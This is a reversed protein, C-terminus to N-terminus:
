AEQGGGEVSIAWPGGLGKRVRARGSEGRTGVCRRLGLGSRIGMERDRERTEERAGGAGSGRVRRESAGEGEGRAGTRGRTAEESRQAPPRGDGNGRQM